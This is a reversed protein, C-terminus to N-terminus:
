ETALPASGKLAQDGTRRDSFTGIPRRVLPRIWASFCLATAYRAFDRSYVFLREKFLAPIPTDLYAAKAFDWLREVMEPADPASSFFNPVLGFRSAVEWEFTTPKSTSPSM